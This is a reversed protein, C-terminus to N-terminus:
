ASRVVFQGTTGPYQLDMWMLGIFHTNCARIMPAPYRAVHPFPSTVREDSDFAAYAVWEAPRSCSDCNKM